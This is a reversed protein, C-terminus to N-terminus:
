KVGQVATSGLAQTVARGPTQPRPSCPGGGAGGAGPAMVWLSGVPKRAEARGTRVADGRGGWLVNSFVRGKVERSLVM